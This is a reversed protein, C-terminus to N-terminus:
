NARVAIQLFGFEPRGPRRFLARRCRLVGWGAAARRPHEEDRVQGCAGVALLQRRPSRFLRALQVANMGARQIHHPWAKLFFDFRMNQAIWRLARPQWVVGGQRTASHAESVALFGTAQSGPTIFVGGHMWDLSPAQCQSAQLPALNQQRRSSFKTKHFRM